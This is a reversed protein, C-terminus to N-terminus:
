TRSSSPSRRRCSPWRARAASTRPRTARTTSASCRTARSRTPRRPVVRAAGVAAWLAWVARERWTARWSMWLFYLGALLWGEPRLLGAAALLAFVPTGRHPRAAELAIAWVVLALYPIDIYGRAALFAFDFRSLLLLAAIAGVLPRSRWAGSGTSPPWSRWSRPSPSRWGCGTPRGRRVAVARAGVVIALPHETPLRFGEFHPLTGDCSRAAGCCRTTPTTTRTPRSSSSGSRSASACCCSPGSPGSIPAPTCPPSPITPGPRHLEDDLDGAEVLLLRQGTM